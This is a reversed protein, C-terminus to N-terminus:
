DALPATVPNYAFIGLADEDKLSVARFADPNIAHL